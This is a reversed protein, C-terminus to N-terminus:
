QQDQQLALPPPSRERVTQLCATWMFGVWLPTLLCYQCHFASVTGQQVDSRLQLLQGRGANYTLM